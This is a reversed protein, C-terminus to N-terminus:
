MSEIKNYIGDVLGPETRWKVITGLRHLKLLSHTPVAGSFVFGEGGWIEKLQNEKMSELNRIMLTKLQNM